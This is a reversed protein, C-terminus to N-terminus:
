THDPEPFSRANQTSPAILSIKIKVEESQSKTVRSVGRQKAPDHTEATKQRQQSTKDRNDITTELHRSSLSSVCVFMKIFLMILKLEVQKM